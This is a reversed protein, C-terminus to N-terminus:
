ARGDDLVTLTARDADLEVPVGMPITLQGGCHGFGLDAIIPVGLPGLRELALDNVDGCGSWSGLAIGTVTDFWGRRLLNTLVRDLAYLDEDIDELLAISGPPPTTPDFAVLTACGGTTTGRATGPVLTGATPRTLVREAAPTFLARRLHEQAQVDHVFGRTAIMPAFLTATDGLTTFATHLATIDSSGAFAKPPAAAIAAWDLHDQTRQSGYGGRACIVAKVDPDHWADHVDGARDTDHGALYPLEPHRDLVHPAVRVDLGWTRLVAVGATLMGVPTPGAPAVVTVRDGARLPPPRRPAHTM